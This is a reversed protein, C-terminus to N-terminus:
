LPLGPCKANRRALLFQLQSSLSSKAESLELPRCTLTLEGLVTKERRVKFTRVADPKGCAPPAESLSVACAAELSAVAKAFGDRGMADKLRADADARVIDRVRADLEEPTWDASLPAYGLTAGPVPSVLDGARRVVFCPGPDPVPSAEPAAGFAPRGECVAREDAISVGYRAEIAKLPLSATRQGIAAFDEQIRRQVATQSRVDTPGPTWPDQALAPAASLVGALLFTLRRM